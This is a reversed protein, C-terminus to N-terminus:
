ACVEFLGMEPGNQTFELDAGCVGALTIRVIVDDDKVLQPKPIDVVEIKAREKYVVAKM